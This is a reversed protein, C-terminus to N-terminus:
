ENIDSEKIVNIIASALNKETIGIALCNKNPYLSEVDVCFGEINNQKLYVFLKEKSTNSLKNDYLVVYSKRKGTINAIGFLVNRSKIAYGVYSNIKTRM